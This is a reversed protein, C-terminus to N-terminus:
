RANRRRENRSDALVDQLQVLALPKSFVASVALAAARERLEPTVLGSCIVVPVDPCIRGLERALQLGDVDQMHYDTVVVSFRERRSRVRALVEAACAFSQVEYGACQLRKSLVRLYLEDDDVLAILTRAEPTPPRATGPRASM